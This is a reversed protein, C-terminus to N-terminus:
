NLIRSHCVVVIVARVTRSIGAPGERQSDAQIEREHQDLRHVAHERVGHRQEGVGPM